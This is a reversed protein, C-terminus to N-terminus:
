AIAAHAGHGPVIVDEGAVRGPHQKRKRAPRQLGRQYEM